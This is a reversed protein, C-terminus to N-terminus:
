LDTSRKTLTKTEKSVLSIIEADQFMMSGTSIMTNRIEQRIDEMQGLVLTQCSRRQQLYKIAVKLGLMTKAAPKPQKNKLKWNWSM